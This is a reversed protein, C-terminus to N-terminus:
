RKRQACEKGADHYAFGIVAMPCGFFHLRQLIRERRKEKDRHPHKKVRTNEHFLRQLNQRDQRNDHDSFRSNGERDDNQESAGDGRSQDNRCTERLNTLKGKDQSFETDAQM